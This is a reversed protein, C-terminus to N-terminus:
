AAMRSSPTTNSPQLPSPWQAYSRSYEACPTIISAIRRRSKAFVSSADASTAGMDHLASSSDIRSRSSAACRPSGAGVGSRDIIPLNRIGFNRGLHVAGTIRFWVSVCWDCLILSVIVGEIDVALGM